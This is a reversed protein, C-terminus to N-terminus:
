REESGVRGDPGEGIGDRVGLRDEEEAERARM